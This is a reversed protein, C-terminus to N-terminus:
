FEYRPIGRWRPDVTSWVITSLGENAAMHWTPHSLSPMVRMEHAPRPLGLPLYPSRYTSLSLRAAAGVPITVLVLQDSTGRDGVAEVLAAQDAVVQEAAVQEPAAGDGSARRREAAM